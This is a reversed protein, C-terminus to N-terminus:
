RPGRVPPAGGSLPLSMANALRPDAAARQDTSLSAYLTKASLAIDELATLRNRATDVIRDIRQALDMSAQPRRQAARERALDGALARIKEAYAQWAAEQAAGLKLDEHLEHLTVELQDVQPEADPRDGKDRGGRRGGM